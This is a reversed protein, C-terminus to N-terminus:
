SRLTKIYPQISEGTVDDPELSCINFIQREIKRSFDKFREIDEKEETSARTGYREEWERFREEMSVVGYPSVRRDSYACIKMEWDNGEAIEKEFHIEEKGLLERIRPNVGLEEVMQLTAPHAKEGYKSIFDEKIRRWHELNEKEDGLLEVNEENELDIKAMNGLDHLLATAIVDEKNIVPGEWKDCILSAVGAVRLMHERLNPPANFREYIREFNEIVEKSKM